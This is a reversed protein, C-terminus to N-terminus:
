GCALIEAIGLKIVVQRGADAVEVAFAAVEARKDAQWVATTLASGPFAPRAFRLGFRRLRTADGQCVTEVVARSAFAMTCLGHLIIGPFGAAKAAAEDLHYTGRDGSARAYRYTQDPDVAYTVTALPHASDPSLERSPADDGINAPAFVGRLFVTWYQYNVPDGREDRTESRTIVTTGTSRVRVGIPAARSRLAMDPLIPKMFFMDQEGHVKRLDYGQTEPLAVIDMARTAGAAMAPVVAFMPTAIDGNVHRPHTDNIALAYSRIRDRTVHFTKEETWRGIQDFDFRM